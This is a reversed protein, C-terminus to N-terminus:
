VRRNPPNIPFCWFVYPTQIPGEGSNNCGPHLFPNRFIASDDAQVQGTIDIWIQVTGLFPTFTDTVRGSTFFPTKNGGEEKNKILM